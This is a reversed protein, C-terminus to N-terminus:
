TEAEESWVLAEYIRRAPVGTEAAARRAAERKRAGGTVFSAALRVAEDADGELRDRGGAGEVVVVVEGKMERSETEEKVSWLSGRLVEQHLKTLERAVAVRRDGLAGHLDTLM